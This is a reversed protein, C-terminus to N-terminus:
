DECSTPKPNQHRRTVTEGVQSELFIAAKKHQLELVIFVKELRERVPFFYHKFAGTNQQLSLDLELNNM